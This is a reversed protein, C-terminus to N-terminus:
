LELQSLIAIEVIGFLRLWSDNWYDNVVLVRQRMWEHKMPCCFWTDFKHCPTLLTDCHNYNCEKRNMNQRLYGRNASEDQVWVMCERSSGSWALIWWVSRIRHPGAQWFLEQQVQTENKLRQVHLLRSRSSMSFLIHRSEVYFHSNRYCTECM